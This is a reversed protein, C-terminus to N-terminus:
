RTPQMLPRLARATRLPEAAVAALVGGGLAGAVGPTLVDVRVYPGALALQQRALVGNAAAPVLLVVPAVPDGAQTRVAAIAAHLATGLPAHPM